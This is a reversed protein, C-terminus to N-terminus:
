HLECKYMPTAICDINGLMGLAVAHPKEHLGLDSVCVLNLCSSAVPRRHLYVDAKMMSVRQYHTNYMKLIFNQSRYRRFCKSIAVSWVNEVRSGALSLEM